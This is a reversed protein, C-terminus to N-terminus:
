RLFWSIEDSVLIIQIFWLDTTSLHSFKNTCGGTVTSFQWLCVLLSIVSYRRTKSDPSISTFIHSHPCPELVPRWHFNQVRLVLIVHPRSDLAPSSPYKEVRYSHFFQGKRGWSEKERAITSQCRGAKARPRDGKSGGTIWM